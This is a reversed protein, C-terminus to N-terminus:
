ILTLKMSHPVMFVKILMVRADM